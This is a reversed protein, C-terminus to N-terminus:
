HISITYVIDLETDISDIVAVLDIIKKDPKYFISIVDGTSCTTCSYCGLMGVYRTCDDHCDVYEM